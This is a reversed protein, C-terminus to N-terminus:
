WRTMVPPLTTCPAMPSIDNNLEWLVNLTHAAANHWGCLLRRRDRWSSPNHLHVALTITRKRAGGPPLDNPCYGGRDGGFGDWDDEDENKEDKEPLSAM